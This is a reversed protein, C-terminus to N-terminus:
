SDGGNGCSFEWHRFWIKEILKEPGHQKVIRENLAELQSKLEKHWLADRYWAFSRLHGELATRADYITGELLASVEVRFTVRTEREDYGGIEARSTWQTVQWGAPALGAPWGEEDRRPAKDPLIRRLRQLIPGNEAPPAAL